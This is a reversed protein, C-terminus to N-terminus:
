GIKAIVTNFDIFPGGIAIDDIPDPQIGLEPRFIVGNEPIYRVITCHLRISGPILVMSDFACALPSTTTTSIGTTSSYATTTVRIHRHAGQSSHDTQFSVSISYMGASPVNWSELTTPCALTGQDQCITSFLLKHWEFDPLGVAGVIISIHGAMLWPAAYATTCGSSPDFIPSFCTATAASGADFDGNFDLTSGSLMNINGNNNVTIDAGANVTIDGGSLVDVHGGSEININGNAEVDIKGVNKVTLAAGGFIKIESGSYANLIGGSNVDVHGGSNVQTSGLNNLEIAAGGGVNIAGSGGVNIDAGSPVDMLGGLELLIEGGNRVVLDGGSNVNLSGLNNVEISGNLEVDLTAAGFGSPGVVIAGGSRAILDGGSVILEAGTAVTQLSGGFMTFTSGSSMDIAGGLLVNIDGGSNVNILGGSDVEVRGSSALTIEANGGVVTMQTILDITDVIFPDGSTCQDYDTACTPTFGGGGSSVCHDLFTGSPCTVIAGPAFALTGSDFVNISGGTQVNLDAGTELEIDGGLTVILDGANGVHIDGGSTVDIKGYLNVNLNGTNLASTGDLNIAGNAIVSVTGGNEVSIDGGTHVKVAGGSNVNIDGLTNVEMNANGNLAIEGNAYVDILGGTEVLVRAGVNDIRLDGTLDVTDVIFPDGSNCQDYDLDCQPAVAGGENVCDNFLGPDACTVVAGAAFNLAVGSNIDIGGTPVITNAVFPDGSNCQDYDTSCTPIFSGGGGSENVCHNLFGDSPCSVVSGTAFTLLSNSQFEVEGNNGVLVEGGTDVLLQGFNEIWIDGGWVDMVSGGALYMNSGSKLDILGGSNVNVTGGSNIEVSSPSNVEMTSGLTVTDVLFPDGSTCGVYDASCSPTFSGGAAVCGSALDFITNACTVEGVLQNFALTAGAAYTETSGSDHAAVSGINHGISGGSNLELGGNLNVNLVGGDDVNLNGGTEVTLVGSGQVRVEGLPVDILGGTGVTVLGNNNVNVSSFANLEISSGSGMTIDAGSLLDLTGAAVNMGTVEFDTCASHETCTPTYFEDVCDNLFGTSPCTVIAGTGFTFNGDVNLDSGSEATLSAGTKLHVQNHIDVLSAPAGQGLTSGSEVVLGGVTFNGCFSYDGCTKAPGPEDVCANLFDTSPCSVTSGTAFTLLSGSQFTQSAGNVMDIVSGSTTQIDAGSNLDLIGGTLDMGVAAFDTCASHETCVPTYFEDVCDNLFGTSPCTVSSGIGFTLSAGSAIGIDSGTTTTLDAGALLDLSGGNVDAGAVLFDTCTAHQDCTPIVTGSEDVCDNLFGTTPCTVISGLEFTLSGISTVTLAETINVAGVILPDTGDCQDYNTSCTPTFPEDVCGNLFGTSPCTVSSGIAFTLSGANEVTLDETISIAGAVLPDGSNCQDYNTACIPSFPEDVCDNLFSATPCTVSSGLDFALVGGTEISLVSGTTINVGETASLAGVILPDTGDCQDYNTSCTPTFPEDVCNNLFGTSPCVISSGLAFTLSAGSALGIDSGASATLDAGATLDVSGGTVDMGTVAFDTCGSHETCTPTYFEDVCDNLFGTSPCTVAAGAGFTLNGDVNLDSGSEVTLAAGTKLHVQNHIDFLSAPTGLGLTGGDDVILGGVTFNSCFSYDSCTNAPGPEDVCSNLFSTSPCVVSAGTAFSLLSGSQFTQSAGNVMDIASGSTTQIDAGTNLDLVGGNVDIGTAEFDTCASHETCTPTYFEDVCDNLFGTSPCTVSSGIGFTVSAGSAISLDSGATTTLDAGALLDLSGGTVDMGAVLFDTCTAHQDCTPIVTGSEDVCDNLFGTTPCTVISGLEFTLSGISTVTLAETINVAGVILPDAGDCQDYNTSCTPTFPEDVCGNLFGTSPCTVSSGTIFTLSSGSEVTLDETISIAGAVLPDGSNCQDYNTACIPSFPEDVCDNLFGPTPCTVTSAIDFALAGGAELALTSGTTINVGETASLAGVILPDTGDCQDYNTSCTPTFPEDVCNNLFGTSPCVISSGLAFTLSAAGGINVDSGPTTVIDGGAVLTLDGGNVNLGIVDFDTCASHETCTPAYFEDVCDNLFDTSPCTVSAGTAFTLLSGSQFTQSAGTVMDIASGSTTQIDAGSNLDLTGGALDMGVAAFDTCASHEACTPTYFEDVCDNLFGTSPCTVSSGVAFTISAGSVISLDSGATTSLDAGADLELAGGNVSMGIVTFNTCTDHHDCTPTNIGSEDVCDNLFSSNPCTVTSGTIFTLSGGTEIVLEETLSVAGIVMPDGSNCQDYNTSCTPTFPEDVCGNLFSTSPCTVSSGVAFTLSGGSEVTLDETLSIAGVVLPDGSNCQDYNTSCTPTFPEDVCGNLFGTTPCTISSGADFVVAGGSEIALTSGGTINVGETASLSGVILPDSGDCQDYNTACIPTFPEDVCNNLFGNSPCVVSSGPAFTISAASAINIDSGPTTLIDGGNTLVLEGGDMNIGKVDFENCAAHEDCTAAGSEDVCDNLFDPSPCVLSSGSQFVISANASLVVTSNPYFTVNNNYIDLPRTPDGEGLTAGDAELTTVLFADCDAAADCELPEHGGGGGGGGGCNGGHCAKGGHLFILSGLPSFYAGLILIFLAVLIVTYVRHWRRANDPQQDEGGTGANAGVLPTSNKTILRVADKARSTGVPSYRPENSKGTRRNLSAPTDM